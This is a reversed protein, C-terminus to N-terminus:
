EGFEPVELGAGAMAALFAEASRTAILEQPFGIEELMALATPTRGVAHSVHADTNVVVQCGQEACARAIERCSTWTHGSGGTGELSHENIEILKGRCAAEGVVERVDFPVGARGTHGLVLVKPQALAGLYMQTTQEITADKAFDKYHVSAIVYDCSSTARDFLSRPTRYRAGTITETVEIDQGFLRGDLTRIDAEAGHLLRVGEWTRPWIGMNIFHQYDRLDAHHLDTNPFLMDSFHDTVGLLELGAEHAALVNERLTSYAHRSYLTHTHVDCRNQLM